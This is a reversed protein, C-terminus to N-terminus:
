MSLVMNLRFVFVIDKHDKHLHSIFTGAAGDAGPVRPAILFRREELYTENGTYTKKHEDSGETWRCHARGSIEVYIGTLTLFKSKQM